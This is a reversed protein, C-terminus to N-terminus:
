MLIHHVCLCMHAVVSLSEVQFVNCEANIEQMLDKDSSVILLRRVSEERSASGTDLSVHANAGDDGGGSCSAPTRTAHARVYSAILDDAEYESSEMIPQNLASLADQTHALANDTISVRQVCVLAICEVDLCVCSCV